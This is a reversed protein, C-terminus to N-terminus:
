AAVTATERSKLWAQYRQRANVQSQELTVTQGRAVSAEAEDLAIQTAEDIPEATEQKELHIPQM